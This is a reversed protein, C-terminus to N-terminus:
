RKALMQMLEHWRDATYQWRFHQVVRSRGALGMSRSLEDDQLLRILAASLDRDLRDVPLTLGTLGDQVIEPIGGASSAVVPVGSAMAEVNVLGFAEGEGSPVVIVDALRYWKPMESHSVLPIFTVHHRYPTALQHLKAEYATSTGSGYFASGIIVVMVEPVAKVLDPLAALLHHIGKIPLLRGAYMIIKRGTWGQQQLQARRLNDQQPSWRSPFDAISVGLWNVYVRDAIAPFRSKLEEGLYTSNAVIADVSAVYRAAQEHRLHPESIFSLSHLSLAVKTQPLAQKLTYAIRPRNMVDIVQPRWHLLSAQVSRIYASGKPYRHVPIKGVSGIEDKGEGCIGYIRINLGEAALPISQEAVREVSSSNGSPIVFSGPTIVAVRPENM